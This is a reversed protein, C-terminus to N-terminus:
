VLRALRAYAARGREVQRTAASRLEGELSPAARWLEDLAPEISELADPGDLEVVRCGDGFQEQLGRFKDAYYSTAALGVAPIGQALAFVAAHYSGAVVATCRGILEVADRPHAVPPTAGDSLLAAFADRDDEAPHASIAIPQLEAGHDSAVRAAARAIAAVEREGIGAYPAVRANIGLRPPSSPAPRSALALEIGDDGTVVVREAAVGLAALLGPGSCGERLAILGASPLVRAARARLGADDLPGVGQGLLATPLGIAHALELEALVERSEGAFADTLGGRGSLLLVDAALLEDVYAAVPESRRRGELALRARRLRRPGRLPPVSDVLEYRGRADVPTVGPCLRALPDFAVTLVRVDPEPWLGRLRDVCVQLMAVDGLNLLHHSGPDILVRKAM